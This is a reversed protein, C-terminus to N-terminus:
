FHMNIIHINVMILHCLEISIWKTKNQNQKNTKHFIIRQKADSLHKIM